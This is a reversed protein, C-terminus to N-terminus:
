ASLVQAALNVQIVTVYHAEDKALPLKWIGIGEVLDAALYQATRM